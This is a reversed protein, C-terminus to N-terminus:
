FTKMLLALVTINSNICSILTVIARVLPAMTLTRPPLELVSFYTM